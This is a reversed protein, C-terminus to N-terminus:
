RPGRFDATRGSKRGLRRLVASARAHFVRLLWVPGLKEFKGRLPNMLRSPASTYLFVSNEAALGPSLALILRFLAFRRDLTSLEAGGPTDWLRSRRLEPKPRDPDTVPKRGQNPPITFREGKESLVTNKPRDNRYGSGRWRRGTIERPLACKQAPDPVTRM